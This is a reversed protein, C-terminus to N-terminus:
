ALSQRTAIFREAHEPLMVALWANLGRLESSPYGDIGMLSVVRGVPVGGRVHNALWEAALYEAVTRHAYNVTEPVATAVFCRGTLPRSFKRLRASPFQGIAGAVQPEAKTGPTFDPDGGRKIALDFLRDTKVRLLRATNMLGAAIILQNQLKMQDAAYEINQRASNLSAGIYSIEEFTLRMPFVGLM